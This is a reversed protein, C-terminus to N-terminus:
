AHTTMENMQTNAAMPMAPKKGKHSVLCKQLPNKLSIRCPFFCLQPRALCMNNICLCVISDATLYWMCSARISNVDVQIAFWKTVYQM